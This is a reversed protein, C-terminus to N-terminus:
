DDDLTKHQSMLQSQVGPPVAEYHSLEVTYRGQGSTLANLRMQYGSLESLPALGRVVMTGPAGNTTGSVLGRRSSLDGTIDGMASDPATIEIHVVPELVIPRAERLAGLFAKRGATVFAIEKSDVTHHKGDYVTVRVDMVPYGAIAGGALVERV